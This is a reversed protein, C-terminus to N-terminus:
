EVALISALLAPELVRDAHVVRGQAQAAPPVPVATLGITECVRASAPDDGVPRAVTPWDPETRRAAGLGVEGVWTALGHGWVSPALRLGLEWWGAHPTVGGVGVLEDRVLVAWPGVGAGQWGAVSREIITVAQERDTHAAHPCHPWTGPDSLVAHLADADHDALPRLGWTDPHM